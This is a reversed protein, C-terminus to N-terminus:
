APDFISSCIHVFISEIKRHNGYLFNHSFNRCNKNGPNSKFPWLIVANIAKYAGNLRSFFEAM